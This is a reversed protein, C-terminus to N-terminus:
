PWCAQWRSAERAAPPNWRGGARWTPRSVITPVNRPPSLSLATTTPRAMGPAPRTATRRTANLIPENMTVGPAPM